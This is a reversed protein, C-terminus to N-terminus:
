KELIYVVVVASYSGSASTVHTIKWGEKLFKTVDSPFNDIVRDQGALYIYHYYIKQEAQASVSLILSALVALIIKM